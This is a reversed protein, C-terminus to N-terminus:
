KLICKTQTQWTRPPTGGRVKKGKDGVSSAQLMSWRLWTERRPSTLTRPYPELGLVSNQARAGVIIIMWKTSIHELIIYYYSM